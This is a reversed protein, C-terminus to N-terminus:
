SLILAFGSFKIPHSVETEKSRTKVVVPEGLAEERKKREEYYKYRYVDSVGKIRKATVESWALGSGAAEIAEEIKVVM